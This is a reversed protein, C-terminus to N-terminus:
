ARGCRLISIHQDRVRFDHAGGGGGRGPIPGPDEAHGASINVAISGRIQIWDLYPNYEAHPNNRAIEPIWCGPSARTLDFSSKLKQHSCKLYPRM